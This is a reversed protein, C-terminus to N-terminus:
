INCAYVMIYNLIHVSPSQLFPEAFFCKRSKWLVLTQNRPCSQIGTVLAGPPRAGEEPKQTYYCVNQMHLCSCRKLFNFIHM